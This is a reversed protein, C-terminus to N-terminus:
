TASTTFLNKRKIFSNGLLEVLPFHLLMAHNFLITGLFLLRTRAGLAYCYSHHLELLFAFAAGM